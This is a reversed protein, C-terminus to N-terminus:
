VAGDPQAANKSSVKLNKGNSILGRPKAPTGPVPLPQTERHTHAHTSARMDTHTHALIHPCVM